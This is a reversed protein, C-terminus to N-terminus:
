SSGGPYSGRSTVRVFYTNALCALPAGVTSGSATGSLTHSFTPAPGMTDTLSANVTAAMGYCAGSVGPAAANTSAGSSSTMSTCGVSGSASEGDLNWGSAWGQWDDVVAFGGSYLCSGYVPNMSSDTLAYAQTLVTATAPEGTSPLVTCASANVNLFPCYYLFIGTFNYINDPPWSGVYQPQEHM